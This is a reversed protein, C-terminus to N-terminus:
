PPPHKGPGEPSLNHKGFCLPEACDFKVEFVASFMSRTFDDSVVRTLALHRTPLDLSVIAQQKDTIQKQADGLDILIVDGPETDGLLRVLEPCNM